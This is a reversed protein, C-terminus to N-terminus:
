ANVREWTLLTVGTLPILTGSFSRSTKLSYYAPPPFRFVISLPRHPAANSRPLTSIHRFLCLGRSTPRPFSALLATPHKVSREILSVYTRHIGADFALQEQSVNKKQRCARLEAGVAEEIDM